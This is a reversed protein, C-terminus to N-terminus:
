SHRQRPETAHQTQHRHEEAQAQGDGGSEQHGAGRAEGVEGGLDDNKEARRPELCHM